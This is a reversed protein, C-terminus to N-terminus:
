SKQCTNELTKIRNELQNDIERQKNLEPGVVMLLAFAISFTIMSLIAIINLDKDTYSNM